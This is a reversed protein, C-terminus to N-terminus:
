IFIQFCLRIQGCVNCKATKPIEYRKRQTKQKVPAPEPPHSMGEREGDALYRDAVGQDKSQGKSKSQYFNMHNKTEPINQMWIEPRLFGHYNNFFNEGM